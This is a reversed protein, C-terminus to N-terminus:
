KLALSGRAGAAVATAKSLRLVQVPINKNDTTGDGLEGDANYGWAWVSGDTGLALSHNEGSAVAVIGTLAMVQAPAARDTYTGDGLEGSFNRGWARVTGDALVALSFATGASIGVARSIGPVQTPTSFKGGPTDGWARVTGDSKLAMSQNWSAAVAVVNSLSVVQVAATRAHTTGDGLQGFWNGGTAWVTGDAKLAVTHGLGGAVAVAQSVNLMLVPTLTRNTTGDGLQGYDNEGWTWVTGDSKAAISHDLGSAIAVVNSLNAVETPTLVLQTYHPGQSSPLLGWQRVTNDSRLASGVDGGISIASVGDIGTVLDPVARAGETGNSRFARGWTAITGPLFDLTTVCLPNSQASENGSSDYASVAYCYETNFNLGIDSLSLSAPNPLPNQVSQLFIGNRFVKYGAVAVDDSSSNWLLDVESATVVTASLGAPVTPPAIDPATGTSFTATYDSALNNGSLDTVATTITVTITSAYPLNASPTFTALFGNAQVSGAIPGPPGTVILSAATVTAPNVDESFLVTISSTVAIGTVGNPNVSSVNPPTTDPLVRVSWSQTVSNGCFDPVTAASFAAVTNAQSHSPKWSIFAGSFSAGAPMQSVFVSSCVFPLFGCEHRAVIFYSYLQGVTAQTPPTSTIQPPPSCSTGGDGDREGGCSLLFLVCAFISLRM